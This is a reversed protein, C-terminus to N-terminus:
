CLMCGGCKGTVCHSEALCENVDFCDPVEAFTMVQCYDRYKCADELGVLEGKLITQQCEADVSFM